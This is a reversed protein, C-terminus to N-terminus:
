KSILKTGTTVTQQRPPQAPRVSRLLFLRASLRTSSNVLNISHHHPPNSSLTQFLFDCLLYVTTQPPSHAEDEAHSGVRRPPAFHHVCYLNSIIDEGLCCFWFLPTDRMEAVAAMCEAKSPCNSFATRPIKSRM